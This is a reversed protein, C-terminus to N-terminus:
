IYPTELNEKEYNNISTDIIKYSVEIIEINPTSILIRAIEIATKRDKKHQIAWMVEDITLASTYIKSIGEKANELIKRAKEGEKEITAFAFIFFNTDAYIEKNEFESEQEEQEKKTNNM